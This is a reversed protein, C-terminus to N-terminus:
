QNVPVREATPTASVPDAAVLAALITGIMTHPMETIKGMWNVEGRGMGEALETVTAGHQLAISIILAVDKAVLTSLSNTAKGSRMPVDIFVEAIRGDPFRGLTIVFEQEVGDPTLHKVPFTDAPRRNDLRTRM